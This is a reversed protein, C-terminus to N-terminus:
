LNCAKRTNPWPGFGRGSKYARIATNMQAWVPWNDATGWQRLYEGGYTSQFSLDMQLGGYYGNGTNANWAGEYRHICGFANVLWQDLPPHYPEPHLKVWATHRVSMLYKLTAWWREQKKHNPHYVTRKANKWIAKIYGNAHYYTKKASIRESPSLAHAQATSTATMALAIVCLALLKRIM